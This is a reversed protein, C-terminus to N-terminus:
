SLVETQPSTNRPVLDLLSPHKYGFLVFPFFATRVILDLLVDFGPEIMQVDSCFASNVTIKMFGSLTRLFQENDHRQSNRDVGWV